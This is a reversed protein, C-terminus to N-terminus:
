SSLAQLSHAMSEKHSESSPDPLRLLWAEILGKGKMEVKGRCEFPYVDKLEEYVARSVQIVGPIGTSEMRSAINVTDGWLDYIFKTTGIVGAVVPGTNIGVRISFPIGRKEGYAKVAELMELGMAVMQRVHDPHSPLIGSVAMYADGITKIKEIGHRKAAADFQTFLGNLFMLIEVPERTGAMNTFGVVDAFLVTAQAYSDAIDTEGSKLRHAIPGPLINLLLNENELNKQEIVAISQGITESMSNFASSLVGLEDRSQVPVRATLDGASMRKVAGLLAHIPKLLQETVMFAVATTLLVAIIGWLIATHRIGYVPALAEDLDVHALVVWNVGPLKLPMFSVIQAHGDSGREIITGEQGDLGRRVATLSVKTALVTTGFARVENLEGQTTTKELGTLFEPPHEIYRRATSRMLGDPGVIAVDGSKGLGDKEWQRNGSVVRDIEATSVQMVFTGVRTSRDFVPTAVFAAPAGKLPTYHSFDAVFVTDPDLSAMARAAIAALPTDHYPGVSLSTGFDPNHAASYLVRLDTPHVLLLDDYGFQEILKRMPKDYKAHVRDYALGLGILGPSHAARDRPLVYRNQLWYAATGVPLYAAPPKTLIMFRSVAPLYAQEYWSNVARHVNPENPLTDLKGYTGDFERMAEVFMRDNSLSLVHNRVTRFYSEIQYARTRRLGTLQRIAAEKLSAEARTHALWSSVCVGLVSLCAMILVLRYRISM